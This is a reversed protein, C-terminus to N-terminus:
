QGSMLRFFKMTEALSAPVTCQSMGDIDFVPENVEVWPGDVSSAGYVNYTFPEPSVPWTILVAKAIDLQPIYDYELNDVIM